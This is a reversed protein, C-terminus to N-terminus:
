KLLIMKKVETFEGSTIKYFYMGSSFGSANFQVEYRGPSKEENVLTAVKAGLIDYVELLVSGAEKISYSITTSPNFPNPYNTELSYEYNIDIQDDVGLIIDPNLYGEEPYRITHPEISRDKIELYYFLKLNNNNLYNEANVSMRVPENLKINNYIISTDAGDDESLGFHYYLKVSKVFSDGTISEAVLDDAPHSIDATIIINNGSVNGRLLFDVNISDSYQYLDFENTEKNYVRSEILYYYDKQQYDHKLSELRYYWGIEPAFLAKNTDDLNYGKTKLQLGHYNINEEIVQVNMEDLYLYGYSYLLGQLFYMRSQYKFDMHLVEKEDNKLYLQNDVEDFREYEDWNNLKYYEKGNFTYVLDYTSVEYTLNIDQGTKIEHRYLYTNGIYHNIYSIKEPIESVPQIKFANPPFNVIQPVFNKDTTKISYCIQLDEQNLSQPIDIVYKFINTEVPDHIITKVETQASLSKFFYKFEIKQTFYSAGKDYPHEIEFSLSITSDTKENVLSKIETKKSSPFFKFKGDPQKILADQLYIETHSDGGMMLEYSTYSTFGKGQSFGTAAVGNGYYGNAEKYGNGVQLECNPVGFITGVRAYEKAKFDLILSETNDSGLKLYEHTLTDYRVWGGSNYYQFYEVGNVVRSQNIEFTFYTGGGNGSRWYRYKNGVAMPIYPKSPNDPKSEKYRFLDGGDSYYIKNGGIIMDYDSYTEYFPINVDILKDKAYDYGYNAAYGTHYIIGDRAIQFKRINARNFLYEFTLLNNRSVYFDNNATHIYFCNGVKMIKFLEGLEPNITKYLTNEILNYIEITEGTVLYCYDNVLIFSESNPLNTKEIWSSGYDTSYYYNGDKLLLVNDDFVAVNRDAVNGSDIVNITHTDMDFYAFCKDTVFNLRGTNDLFMGGLAWNVNNAYINWSEGENTSIYLTNGKRLFINTDFALKQEIDSYSIPFNKIKDWTVYQAFLNTALFVLLIIKKM